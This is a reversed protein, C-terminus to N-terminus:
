LGRRMRLNRSVQLGCNPLWQNIVGTQCLFYMRPELQDALSIFQHYHSFMPGLGHNEITKIITEGLLSKLCKNKKIVRGGGRFKLVVFIAYIQKIGTARQFPVFWQSIQTKKVCMGRLVLKECVQPRYQGQQSHM